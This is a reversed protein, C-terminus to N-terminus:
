KTQGLLGKEHFSFYSGGGVILHDLVEIALGTCVAEIKKTIEQDEGSPEVSGSPHNHVLILAAANKELAMKLVERPYVVTGDITGEFLDAEDILHHAKNLFLVKFIEREKNQLSAALYNLVAEPDSLLSKSIIKERLRRRAIEQVALLTGIKAWGLGPIKRLWAADKCFFGGLGGNKKLLERAHSVADKGRTGNRLLLAVLEADSLSQIGQQIFRERPREAKPWSKIGRIEKEM